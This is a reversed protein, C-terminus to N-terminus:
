ILGGPLHKSVVDKWYAEQTTFAQTRHVSLVMFIAVASLAFGRVSWRSFRSTHSWRRGVDSLACVWLISLVGLPMYPRHENVMEALPMVSSTPFILSLASMAVILYAPRRAYHIRCTMAVGVWGLIALLVSPEAFSRYVPYSLDDAVLDIPAWWEVIYHWWATTQTLFYDLHGVDSASRLEAHWAPLASNRIAAYGVTIAAIGWWRPLQKWRFLSLVDKLFGPPSQWQERVRRQANQFVDWLAFVGLAGVAEVKTFLAFAYLCWAWRYRGTMWCCIAPLLFTTTLMSSRAWQYNVVGAFM